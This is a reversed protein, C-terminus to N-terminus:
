HCSDFVLYLCSSTRPCIALSCYSHLSYTLSRVISVLTYVRNTLVAFLLPCVICVTFQSHLSCHVLLYSCLSYACRPVYHRTSYSCYVLFPTVICVVLYLWALLWPWCFIHRQLYFLHSYNPIFGGVSVGLKELSVWVFGV